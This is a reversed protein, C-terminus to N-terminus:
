IGSVNQLMSFIYQILTKTEMQRTCTVSINDGNTVYNKRIEFCRVTFNSKLVLMPHRNTQRANVLKWFYRSDLGAATDIEENLHKMYNESCRRHYQRFMRKADKYMKYSIFSNGRPRNDSIWVNRKARMLDHLEKLTQDWYPKLYKNFKKSFPLFEDSASRIVSVIDSYLSNIENETLICNSNASMNLCLQDLSDRYQDLVEHGVGRWKVRRRFATSSAIQEVYPLEIHMVIPRHTSVNLADDDLVNCTSVLDIKEIQILIHDIMSTYEGSYSVFTSTASTCLPLTNVSLFNNGSLFQQLLSSRRDQGKLFVRGNKHANFDGMIILVKTQTCAVYTKYSLCILSLNPLAITQQRFTSKFLLYSISSQCNTNYGLLKITM